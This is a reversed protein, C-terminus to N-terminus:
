SCQTTCQCENREGYKQLMISSNSWHCCFLLHYLRHVVSVGHDLWFFANMEGFKSGFGATYEEHAGALVVVLVAALVRHLLRQGGVRCQALQPNMQEAALRQAVPLDEHQEHSRHTKALPTFHIPPGNGHCPLSKLAAFILTIRIDFGNRTFLDFFCIHTIATHHSESLCFQLVRRNHHTPAAPLTGQPTLSAKLAIAPRRTALGILPHVHVSQKKAITPVAM